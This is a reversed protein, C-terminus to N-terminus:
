PIGWTKHAQTSLRWQPHAMCYAICASLNDVRHADDLPQLYLARVGASEFLHPDLGQPHVLKIESARVNIKATKPSVTIWDVSPISRLGNTEVATYFGARQVSSVLAENLQLSPEGGTFVVFRSGEGGTWKEVIIAILEDLDYEIGGIFDTDCWRACPAKGRTRGAETGDWLNCGAFRVFVAVRGTNAGEGQITAFVEKVRYM